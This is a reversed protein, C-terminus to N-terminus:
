DQVFSISELFDAFKKIQAMSDMTDEVGSAFEQLKTVTSLRKAGIGYLMYTPNLDLIRCFLHVHRVTPASTNTTQTWRKVTRASVDCGMEGLKAALTAYTHGERQMAELMRGMAEGRDNITLGDIM